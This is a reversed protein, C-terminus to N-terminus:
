AAVAPQSRLVKSVTSPPLSLERAIQRVKPGFKTATAIIRQRVDESLPQRGCRAGRARAAALGAKTRERILELEFESVAALVGLMLAGMPNSARTDIGQSLAVLSCGNSRFQELILALHSLSRGLRDLKTVIVVDVRGARVDALMRELEPRSSGKAGSAVDQYVVPTWSQRACFADLEMRQCELTQEATSVRLYLAPRATAKM